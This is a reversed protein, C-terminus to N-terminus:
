DEPKTQERAHHNVRLLNKDKAQRIYRERLVEKRKSAKAAPVLFRQKFRIESQGTKVLEIRYSRGLYLTSKGSDLEKGPPHPLDQYKQLHGIKEYIWRRKSEVVQRIKEEQTGEPAHVVLSRDRKTYFCCQQISVFILCATLCTNSASLIM